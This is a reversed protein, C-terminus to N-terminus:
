TASFDLRRSRELKQIEGIEKSVEKLQEETYEKTCWKVSSAIADIRGHVRAILVMLKLSEEETEEYSKEKTSM